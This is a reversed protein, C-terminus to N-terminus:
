PASAARLLAQGVFAAYSPVPPNEILVVVGYRPLEAADLGLFWSQTRQPGAQSLSLHGIVSGWAPWTRRLFAAQDSPLLRRISQAPAPCGAQAQSLLHLPPLVGDNGLVAVVGAMQLPTVLLDGQGLSEAALADRRLHWSAAAVPLEFAPPQTLGWDALGESLRDPGLAEGLAVLPAPCQARLVETWTSAQPMAQCTYTTQGLTVSSTIVDTLTLDLNHKVALGLLVPALAGGPQAQGRTVRNLLPANSAERLSDWAATIHNPDFTPTSALALVAGTHTDVLIAAGNWGNLLAQARQQLRVDLTTVVDLGRSPTHTLERWVQLRWDQEVEGRLAANCVEELESTGHELSAYGTVPAAAPYPYVRQVYGNADFRNDALALRRRDLIRGRQLQLEALVRRPNTPYSRLWDSRIVSWYGTVLLDLFLLGLLVRGLAAALNAQPPIQGGSLPLDFPVAHPASLNLWLGLMVGLMFLSSGGYSLFPFTVGTLPILKINGGVIVLTQIGLLAALGGALLSEFPTRVRQAIRLGAVILWAILLFAVAAGLLGYEEVLAIYPFDTHVFPVFEPAGLGPGQGLLRSAGLAFLAQRIQFARDAQAEAWPDLWISVRLAVRSSFLAGLAMIPGLLFTGGVLPWWRGWALYLMALLTLSFLFVAGLDEQWALLVLALGIMSLMPGLVAPWLRLRSGQQQLLTERREALYAALYIVTLIKLLESPQFYFDALGLWLRPGYGSPNVGILLTAALLLLGAFLVTYRYRRLWRPLGPTLALALMVACSVGSWATQRLLLDPATRAILLLGWGNLFAAPPVLWLDAEPRRWGLFTLSLFWGGAWATLALLLHEPFLGPVRAQLLLWGALGMGMVALALAVYIWARPVPRM